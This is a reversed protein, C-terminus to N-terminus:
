TLVGLKGSITHTVYQLKDAFDSEHRTAIPQSGFGIIIQTGCDPCEWLDAAWVQYPIDDSTVLVTVENKRPRLFVSCGVCVPMTM